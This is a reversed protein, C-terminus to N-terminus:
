RRGVARNASGNSPRRAGGRTTSRRTSTRSSAMSARTRSTGPRRRGSPRGPTIKVISKIGKFGYKWPVVLRLPAGNQAPLERRLPRGGPADASADGRGDAPRRCLALRAGRGEPGAHAHSRAADPIRRIRCQGDARRARAAQGASLGVWPIVMSWGEVCRMRYVREELPVAKICSMSTSYRAAQAGHGRGRGAVAEGRVRRGRGRRRGQRDHVRLLQQLQQYEHLSTVRSM